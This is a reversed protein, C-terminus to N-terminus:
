KWRRSVGSLAWRRLGRAADRLALEYAPMDRYWPRPRDSARGEVSRAVSILMGGAWMSFLLSSGGASVFPLSLGKTPVVGSVVAIHVAAQLGLLISIGFALAFGFRDRAALAVRLGEWVIFAFAGIVATAGVFGLQEAITAMVFDNSAAPLFGIAGRGLGVGAVGGSGIAILSQVLQYGSGLPDAWPNLFSMVRELRYPSHLILRHLLPLCAGAALLAHLPRTGCVLMLIGCVLGMLVATGFDPEALVLACAAGVVAAPLLFGRTATRMLNPGRSRGEGQRQRECYAALWIVLAVKAFESPQVGVWPGLRIWRRAGNVRAGLAPVLVVALLCFASALVLLHHRRWWHYPVACGVALGVCAVATWAVRRALASTFASEHAAPATAAVMVLGLCSLAGLAAGLRYSSRRWPALAAGQAPAALSASLSDAM